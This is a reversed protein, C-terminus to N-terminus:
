PRSNGQHKGTSIVPTSLSGASLPEMGGWFKTMSHMIIDVGLVAPQILYPTTFTSDVMLPLGAEHALEAILPLNAVEMGPIASRRLSFWGPRRDSQLVFPM